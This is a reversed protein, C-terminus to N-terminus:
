ESRGVGATMKWCFYVILLALFQIGLASPFSRWRGHRDNLEESTMVEAGCPASARPLPEAAAGARPAGGGQLAGDHQGAAGALLGANKKLLIIIGFCFCFYSVKLLLLLKIILIYM